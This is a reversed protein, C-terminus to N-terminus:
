GRGNAGPAAPPHLPKNSTGQGPQIFTAVRSRMVAELEDVRTVGRWYHQEGWDRLDAHAYALLYFDELESPHDASIALECVSQVALWLRDVDSGAEQLWEAALRRVAEDRAVCPVGLEELARDRLAALEFHNGRETAGALMRLHVSDGGTELLSEAWRVCENGCTLQLARRALILATSPASERM